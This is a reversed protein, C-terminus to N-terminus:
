NQWLEKEIKLIRNYKVIREKPGPAGSKIFDAGIGVSLDAIFDDMTEGSRHSVMIKLEARKAIKVCELTETVTGVQNPKIIIGNICKEKIAKKVREKNTVTLDDGIM